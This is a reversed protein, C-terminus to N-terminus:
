NCSIFNKFKFSVENELNLAKPFLIENEIQAHRSLEKEFSNLEAYIVKLHLDSPDSLIYNNTMKRLGQMEHDDNSHQLAYDRISHKEMAYYLKSINPKKNFNLSNFLTLIYTFLTDEEEYIHKIFDEVFFPFIFKLDKTSKDIRSNDLNSILQSIYPLKHKVFIHHSHKLYEIILDIPYKHIALNEGPKESNISELKKVVANLDLGKDRCVQELTKDSYNYFKIGFFNLISAHIYNEDVIQNILKQRTSM